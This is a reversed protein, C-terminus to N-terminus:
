SGCMECDDLNTPRQFRTKRTEDELNNEIENIRRPDDTDFSTDIVEALKNLANNEIIGRKAKIKKVELSDLGFKIPDVAPCSRLYYLGTKIGNKWGYFHCKTLQMFNPEGMFINMSQSQDVFPGREVAQRVIANQKIEFATLYIKKLDDPICDIKQVSGNDFLLENRVDQTWLGRQVLDHVLNENIVIYEGAITTRIYMNTHYPEICENNGMIQSTSATPM